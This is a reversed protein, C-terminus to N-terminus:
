NNTKLYFHLWADFPTAILLALVSSHRVPLLKSPHLQPMLYSLIGAIPRLLHPFDRVWAVWCLCNGLRSKFNLKEPPPPLVSQL